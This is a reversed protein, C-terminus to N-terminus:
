KPPAPVPATIPVIRDEDGHIILTPVDVRDLDKRFDEGLRFV